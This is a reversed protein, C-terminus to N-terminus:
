EHEHAGKTETAKKRTLFRLLSFKKKPKPEKEELVSERDVDDESEIAASTKQQESPEDLSQAQSQLLRACANTISAATAIQSQQQSSVANHMSLSLTDALTTDLFGTAQYSFGQLTNFKEITEASLPQEFENKYQRKHEKM